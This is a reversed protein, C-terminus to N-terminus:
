SNERYWRELARQLRKRARYVRTEVSKESVQLIAACERQSHEELICLTFPTKLKPPLSHIQSLLFQHTESQQLHESIPIDRSPITDLPSQEKNEGSSAIPAFLSFFSRRKERRHHDRCLNAAISYIWTAVKAKPKFRPANRHVRIFTEVVIEEADSLNRTHRWAFRHLAEQHRKMLAKLADEEGQAIRDLLAIDPDTM